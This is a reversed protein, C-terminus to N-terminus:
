YRAGPPPPTTRRQQDIVDLLRRAAPSLERGRRTIISIEREVTPTELVRFRFNEFAPLSAVLAPVISIGDGGKLLWYLMNVTSVEHQPERLMERLGSVEQLQVRTGTDMTLAIYRYRTLEEWHLPGNGSALPHTAYCIMGLRDYMLPQFGLAPDDSWRSTFGLDAAGSLVRQQVDGSVGDRITLGVNPYRATFATIAPALLHAMVSAATAISVHGREGTASARMDAVAGDFERLLRQAVPLFEAGAATLDVRRTTRHFLRLGLAEELQQISATLASQTVFLREAAATFGGESAVAVFCRFHRISAGPTM